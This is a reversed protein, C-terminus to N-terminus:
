TKTRILEGNNVRLPKTDKILDNLSLYERKLLNPQLTIKPYIL